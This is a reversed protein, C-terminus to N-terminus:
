SDAPFEVCKDPQYSVASLQGSGLITM